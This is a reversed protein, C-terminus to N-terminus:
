FSRGVILRVGDWTTHENGYLRGHYIQATQDDTFGIAGLQRLAAFTFFWRGAGYHINPGLFFATHQQNVALLSWNAYENHNRFELGVSWNRRFRYSLGLDEELYTAKTKEFSPPAASAVAGLNTGQEKDLEVWVNGVLLLRDDLFDKQIISRVELGSERPGYEPEAYFALGVKHKYPSLARWLFEASVGDSHWSSQPLLPNHDPSIDLGETLHGVSNNAAGIYTYNGYIALQFNNTIGVEGESRMYVGHYYGHAQGERDTFWQELEFKGKPLTDTTYLYGFITEAAYTPVSTVLPVALALLARAITQKM